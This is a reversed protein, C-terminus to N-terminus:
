ILWELWSMYRSILKDVSKSTHAVSVGIITKSADISYYVRQM